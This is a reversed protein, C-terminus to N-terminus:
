QSGSGRLTVAAPDCCHAPLALQTPLVTCSIAAASLLVSSAMQALAAWQSPPPVESVMM